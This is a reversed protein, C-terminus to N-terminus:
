RCPLYWFAPLILLSSMNYVNDRKTSSTSRQTPNYSHRDSVGSSTQAIYTDQDEQQGILEYCKCSLTRGVHEIVSLACTSCMPFTNAISHADVERGEFM